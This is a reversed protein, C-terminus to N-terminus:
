IEKILNAITEKAVVHNESDVSNLMKILSGMQAADIKGVALLQLMKVEVEINSVKVDTLRITESLMQSHNQLTTVDISTANLLNSMDKQNEHLTHIKPDVETWRHDWEELKEPM